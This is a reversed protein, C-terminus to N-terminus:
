FFSVASASTMNKANTTSSSFNVSANSNTVKTEKNISSEDTQNSKLNSVVASSNQNSISTSTSAKSGKVSSTSKNRALSLSKSNNAISNSRSCKSTTPSSCNTKVKKNSRIDKKDIGDSPQPLCPSPKSANHIVNKILPINEKDEDNLVQTISRKNTSQLM